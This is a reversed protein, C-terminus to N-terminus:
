RKTVTEYRELEAQLGAREAELAKKRNAPESFGAILELIYNEKEQKGCLSALADPRQIDIGAYSARVVDLDHRFGELISQAEISSRAAIRNRCLELEKAVEEIRSEIEKRTM